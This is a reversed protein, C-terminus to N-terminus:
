LQAHRARAVTLGYVKKAGAELLAIACSNITASSTAVDDVVLVSKASVTGPDARFANSVNIRRDTYSLGVQSSTERTRQLAKPRYIKGEALALPYAIMGAQNYGRQRLRAVGLPVPLVIEVEWAMDNLLCALPAAFAAGLGIEAHYKLNIIANRLKGEYIGWSRLATFAPPDHICRICLGPRNVKQGCTTCVPPLLLEVEQQCKPCWHSSKQGCGGCQPPFLIDLFQWYRSHFAYSLRSLAPM